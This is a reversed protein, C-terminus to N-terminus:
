GGAGEGAPRRARFLVAGSNKLMRNPETANADVLRGARWWLRHLLRLPLVLARSLWRPSGPFLGMHALADLGSWFPESPAIWDVAFGGFRLGALVGLHSHHYVSASHFPEMFAVTGFFVGGPRLVRFAERMAVQPFGLHEFVAISLVADFSEDRFPLAHADGLLMAEAAAYDLGVYEFGAHEAVERQVQTGCGLDLLRAGPREARPFWSRLDLPLACPGRMAELDVEPRPNPALPLFDLPPEPQLPEGLTVDLALRKPRVLRLDLQEGRRGFAAGCAACRAGAATPELGGGCQPCSLLPWLDHPLRDAPRRDPPPTM